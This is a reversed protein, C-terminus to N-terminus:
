WPKVNRPVDCTAVRRPRAADFDTIWCEDLLSCYCARMQMDSRAHDVADYLPKPAHEPVVLFEVTERAPIITHSVNSYIIPIHTTRSAAAACCARILASSDGYHGGKYQVDLWEVLAPGVGGNKLQLALRPELRSNFMTGSSNLLPMTNAAVMRENQDVMREMTKGHEISVVLSVVSIFVASVAMIVDLWKVGTGHGHAAHGHDPEFAM